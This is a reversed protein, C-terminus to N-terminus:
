AAEPGIYPIDPAIIEEFLHFLGGSQPMQTTGRYEILYTSEIVQDQRVIFFKRKRPKSTPDIEFLILVIEELIEQGHASSLASKKRVAGLLARVTGPECVEVEFESAREPVPLIEMARKM